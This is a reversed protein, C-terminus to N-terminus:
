DSKGDPSLSSTIERGAPFYLEFIMGEDPNNKVELYGNHDKVSNWVVYLGLGSRNRGMKKKIFFPEFIRPILEDPIDSGSDTIKLVVYEGEPITEYGKLPFEINTNFTKIEITGNNEINEAANIVLNMITKKIHTESGLLNLLDPELIINFLIGPYKSILHHHAAGVLYENLITNLNIVNELTVKRRTLTLMDQVIDAANIGAELMFKVPEILPSDEQLQLLLLEPYSVLGSLINNLDHAVSGAMTGIFELKRAQKLDETLLLQEEERSLFAALTQICHIDDHTYIRNDSNMVCLSGIVQERCTVPFGLYSKLNHKKVHFDTTFFKTKELDEIAVPENKGKITAEWCIHGKPAFQRDLDQPQNHGARVMLSQADEDIRNYLSYSGGLIICAQEVLININKTCDSGLLHFIQALGALRISHDSIEITSPSDTM